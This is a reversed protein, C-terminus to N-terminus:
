RLQEIEKKLLSNERTLLEVDRKLLEIESAPGTSADSDQASIQGALLVFGIAIAAVGVTKNVDGEKCIESFDNLL